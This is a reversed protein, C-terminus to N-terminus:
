RPKTLATGTHSRITTSHKAESGTVRQYQASVQVRLKWVAPFGHYITGQDATLHVNDGDNMFFEVDPSALLMTKEKEVLTASEADLRWERIGNKMATQHIKSLQMDAEKKVRDLM